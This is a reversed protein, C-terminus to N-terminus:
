KSVRWEKHRRVNKPDQWYRKDGTQRIKGYYLEMPISHGLRGDETTRARERLRETYRAERREEASGSGTRGPHRYQFEEPIEDPDDCGHIGMRAGVTVGASGREDDVDRKCELCYWRGQRSEMQYPKHDCPGM